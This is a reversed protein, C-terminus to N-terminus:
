TQTIIMSVEDELTWVEQCDLTPSHKAADHPSNSKVLVTQYGNM